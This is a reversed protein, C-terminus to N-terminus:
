IDSMLSKFNVLPYKKVNPQAVLDYFDELYIHIVLDVIFDIKKSMIFALYSSSHSQFKHSSIRLQDFSIDIIEIWQSLWNTPCLDIHIITFKFMYIM